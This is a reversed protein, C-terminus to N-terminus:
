SLLPKADAFIRNLQSLHPLAVYGMGPGLSVEWIDGKGAPTAPYPSVQSHDNFYIMVANANWFHDKIVFFGHGARELLEVAERSTGLAWYGPLGKVGAFLRLIAPNDLPDGLELLLHPLNASPLTNLPPDPRRDFWTTSIDNEASKWSIGVAFPNDSSKPM